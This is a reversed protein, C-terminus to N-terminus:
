ATIYYIKIGKVNDKQALSLSNLAYTLATVNDTNEVVKTEYSGDYYNIKIHYKM